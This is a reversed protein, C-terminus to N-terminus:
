RAIIHRAEDITFRQAQLRKTNFEDQLRRIAEEQEVVKTQLAQLRFLLGDTLLQSLREMDPVVRVVTDWTISDPTVPLPATGAKRELYIHHRFSNYSAFEGERKNCYPCAGSYRRRSTTPREVVATTM